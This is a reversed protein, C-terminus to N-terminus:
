RYGWGRTPFGLGSISKDFNSLSSIAMDFNEIIEAIYQGKDMHALLINSILTLKVRGKLLKFLDFASIQDFELSSEM